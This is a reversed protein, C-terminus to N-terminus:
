VEDFFTENLRFCGDVRNFTDVLVEALIHAPFDLLMEKAQDDPVGGNYILSLTTRCQMELLHDRYRTEKTEM